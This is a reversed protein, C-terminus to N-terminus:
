QPPPQRRYRSHRTAVFLLFLGSGFGGVIFISIPLPKMVFWGFAGAFTLMTILAVIRAVIQLVRFGTTRRSMEARLVEDAKRDAREHNADFSPVVATPIM